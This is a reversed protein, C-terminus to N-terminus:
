EESALKFIDSFEEVFERCRQCILEGGKYSFPTNCETCIEMTHEILEEGRDFIWKVIDIYDENKIAEPKCVDICIGCGICKGAMFWIATGEKAGFLAETPCFQICEGCNDCSDNISKQSLFSYITPLLTNKIEKAVPKLTQKLLSLKPPVKNPKQLSTKDEGSLAEKAGGFLTKFFDRRDSKYAREEFSKEFGLERVFREGEEMRKKISELVKGDRNLECEQCHSIDCSVRDTKLLAAAFHASDFVSLCPIDKKCSLMADEKSLREVYDNADFFDLSLAETPCVGICVSCNTCKNPNLRMKNRDFYFAGHPCIDLCEKCDNHFYANRLCKLMDFEFLDGKQRYELSM